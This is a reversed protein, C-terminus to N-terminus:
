SQIDSKGVALNGKRILDELTYRPISGIEQEIHEMDATLFRDAAADFAICHDVTAKVKISDGSIDLLFCEYDSYVALTTEDIYEWALDPAYTKSLTLTNYDDLLISALRSGDPLSYRTIINNALTIFLSQEDPAFRIGCLQEDVPISCVQKGDSGLVYITNGWDFALQTGSRNWICGVASYSDEGTKSPFGVPVIVTEGTDPHIRVIKSPWDRGFAFCLRRTEDVSLSHHRYDEQQELYSCQYLETLKNERFDWSFVYLQEHGANPGSWETQTATFLLREDLFLRDHVFLHDAPEAPPSFEEIKGTLLDMGYYASHDIWSSTNDQDTVSLYMRTGDESIGLPDSWDSFSFREPVNHIWPTGDTDILCVQNDRSLLVRVGEAVTRCSYIRWGSSAMRCYAEYSEDYKGRQYKRITYDKTFGPSSQVYFTDKYRCVSTVATQWYQRNVVTDAEYDIDYDATSHWGDANITEFGNATYAIDVVANSLEYERVIQGTEWDLLVCQDDFTYLIGMGDDEGTDYQSLAAAYQGTTHPYCRREFSWVLSRSVPDYSELYLTHPTIYQVETKEETTILSYGKSRMVCLRGNLFSLPYISTESEILTSCDGSELDVLYLDSHAWLINDQQTDIASFAAWKLDPSICLDDEPSRNADLPFSVSRLKEGTDASLIRIEVTLPRDDGFTEGQDKFFAILNTKDPSLSVSLLGNIETCWNEEGTLYDVSCIQNFTQAYLTSGKTGIPTASVLADSFLERILTLKEADWVRISGTLGDANWTFLCNGTDNLSFHSNETEIIGVATVAEQTSSPITYIGLAKGLIYEAETLVPRDQAESPLAALALEIAGLPDNANLRKEAQEVLFRSENILSREYEEAIQVAQRAIVNARNVAYAVFGMVVLLCAATFATLRQLQYIKRRQKLTDFTTGLLPAAIKLLADGRLKKQVQHISRGRADAALVEGTGVGDGKLQPPFSTDPDGATLVALIRSRDHYELFTDIESQVWPSAPTDPSCVVILWGAHKLAERIQQGFDACSSLEGEDVFVRRPDKWTQVTGKPAHFHELKRQITTAALSDVPGHRYCIFADYKVANLDTRYPQLANALDTVEALMEDASHYRNEPERELARALIEQMREVLHGPCQMRRLQNPKLYRGTKNALLLKADAQRGTLLYLTLCGVSYLDAEAGLQLTGDNHLLMEPASFGESTFIVRDTIPATKGGLMPRASGFDILTLLESKDALTGRLFVNGDQIDLHLFGAQHVERLSFLLQQIIRFTEAPSFRRREKIWGSLSRGKESLSEMVTVTNAAVSAAKGPMTLLVSQSSERVPLVRSATRYIGQSVTGEALQLQQARLLYRTGATDDDQSVIEGNEKRIFHHGRSIPYCEKLAYSFGDTQAVGYELIVRQAPYLISGGGCGIPEGTIEYISGQELELRTGVPLPERGDTM